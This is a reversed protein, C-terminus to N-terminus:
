HDSGTIQEVAHVLLPVVVAPARRVTRRQEGRRSVVLVQQDGALRVSLVGLLALAALVVLTTTM